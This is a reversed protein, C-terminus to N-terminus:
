KPQPGSSQLYRVLDRVKDEPLKDLMGEPMLSIPSPKMAEIQDRPIVTKQRSSDILTITKGTEELVLGNLVRGDTLAVSQAQYEKRIMSSPDVLSTLLFEQNGREAGTLDPGITEGENFLKHCVACHEKFLPAGREAKGKDGEALFGRVEAVRRLKEPSGPGPVRGWVEELRGLLKADALTVIQNAQLPRLDRPEITKTSMADLLRTAWEPRTCLLSLVRDRAASPLQPYRKLLREAVSPTSYTGLASLVDPLLDLANNDDALALLAPLGEPRALQGVVEVLAVRDARPVNRDSLKKLATAFAEPNGLRTAFRILTLDPNPRSWLANVMDALAPPVATLRRGELGKEMGSVIAAKQADGPAAALLRACDSDAGRAALVRAARELLVGQGIASRQVLPDVLLSVVGAQDERIQREIAWWLMLPIQTDDRDEDRRILKALIALSDAPGWRQCSAALQSRVHPDAETSALEVLSARLSPNIRADDGLLRVTWRRVGALPHGLLELATSDDLGDSAYLAWLDRLAGVEDRDQALLAKLRPVVSADRREALLRRAEAAYWDNRSERLAVLAASSEQSLDFPAVKKREGYVVRYIRGNSKDWNDRPDLHSARKDYWDVVYVCGDPGVQLDIPRFWNDRADILTGAHKGTFTSGKPTLSHWYVANSLLNGGIFAGHFDVPYADAKYIIGGPTVHGGVKPPEYAIADFYGFTNPNHLPGHKAFGKWYNGGQVMHFTIFSGNSSGFANGAKDFDLGWTNGGGEAFLEFRKTRPHYRWIGQQFELGRVRATVTSGQTGYLWGDPGFQLSNMTAHADQLGFGSLLVEPDGDPKDDKNKDPYFLLYPAQGVFVGGHGVALGSALNLGEAFITEKDAMGDRDTDELIKIRDAGRPGRPPPEPIRDYETRLYQDVTVPKLGAPVPYQLYEIVWARGREDFTLTLPQRVMPESAFLEVHFGPPVVMRARAEEPTYGGGLSMRVFLMAFSVIGIRLWALGQQPFPLFM